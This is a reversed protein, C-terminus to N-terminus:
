HLMLKLAVIALGMAVGACVQLWFRQPRDRARWGAAVELAILTVATTWVAATVGDTVDAGAAWALLLALVPIFGGEVVTLEHVCSRWVHRLNVPERRQLRDGLDYAYIEVLWFLALVLMAAGITEPYGVRRADEAAFLLGIVVTGHVAGEVNEAALSL